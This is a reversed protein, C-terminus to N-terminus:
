YNKIVKREALIADDTITLNLDEQINGKTLQDTTRITSKDRPPVLSRRFMPWWNSTPVAYCETLSSDATVNSHSRLFRADINKNYIHLNNSNNAAIRRNSLPFFM